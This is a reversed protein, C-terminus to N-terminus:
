IKSMYIIYILLFGIYISVQFWEQQVITISNQLHYSPNGESISVLGDNLVKLAGKMEHSLVKRRCFSQEITIQLRFIVIVIYKVNKTEPCPKLM